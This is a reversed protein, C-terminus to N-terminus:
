SLLEPPVDGAAASDVLFHTSLRGHVGAAPVDITNAGALALALAAAKDQGSLCLWIRAASDLAPLTLSVREPPPKPSDRVPIVTRETERIGDLGPFLSAVHGDAGVGLFVLDFAPVREGSPAASALEAAYADAADELGLPGDSAPVRHVAARAVAPLALFGGEVQADNREPDGAPMWREDGWWLHIRGWDIAELRESAGIARLADGGVTGGTLAIHVTDQGGLLEIALDVFREAIGAILAPRDEFVVLTREEPM